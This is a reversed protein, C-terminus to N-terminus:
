KRTHLTIGCVLSYFYVEPTCEVMITFEAWDPAGKGRESLWIYKEIYLSKKVELSDSKM